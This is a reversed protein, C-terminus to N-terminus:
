KRSCEPFHFRVRKRTGDPLINRPNIDSNIDNIPVLAPEIPINVPQIEEEITSNVLSRYLVPVNEATIENNGLQNAEHLAQLQELFNDTDSILPVEDVTEDLVETTELLHTDGPLNESRL